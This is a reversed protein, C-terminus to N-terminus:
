DAFNRMMNMSGNGQILPKINEEQSDDEEEEEIQKSNKLSETPTHRKKNITGLTSLGVILEQLQSSSNELCFTQRITHFHKDAADSCNYITRRMKESSIELKDGQAYPLLFITLIEGIYRNRESAKLNNLYEVVEGLPSKVYPQLRINLSAREKSNDANM